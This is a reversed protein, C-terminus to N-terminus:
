HSEDNEEEEEINNFGNRLKIISKILEDIGEYAKASCPVFSHIENPVLVDWIDKESIENMRYKDEKCGVLILTGNKCFARAEGIWRESINQFSSVNDLAFCLM